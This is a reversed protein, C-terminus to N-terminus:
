VASSLQFLLLIIKCIKDFSKMSFRCGEFIVNNNKIFNSIVQFINDAQIEKKVFLLCFWKKFTGARFDEGFRDM